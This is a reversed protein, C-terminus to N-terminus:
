IQRAIHQEIDAFGDSIETYLYVIRSKAADELAPVPAQSDSEFRLLGGIEDFAILMESLQEYIYDVKRSVKLIMKEIATLADLATTWKGLYQEVEYLKM